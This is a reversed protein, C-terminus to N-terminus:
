QMVYQTLYVDLVEDHYAHKVKEVLEAKTADRGEPSSIEEMPKGSYTEIVADLAKSGNLGEAVSSSQQLAIGIKLFHGDALNVSIPDLATVEGMEALAAAEEAAAQEEATPEPKPALVTFYAAGGAGMLVIVTVLLLVLKNPGKKKPAATEATVTATAM